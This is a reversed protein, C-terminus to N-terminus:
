KKVELQEVTKRAAPRELPHLLNLTFGEDRAKQWARRAARPNNAQLYASALRFSSAADKGMQTAQELDAIAQEPRDMAAYVIARTDLLDPQPGALALAKNISELAEEHKGERLALLVALNNYALLKKGDRKLVDRYYNVAQATQGQVDAVNALALDFVAKDQHKKRDELLWATVQRCEEPKPEGDRLVGVAVEALLHDPTKGRIEGCLKLAESIRNRRGLFQIL